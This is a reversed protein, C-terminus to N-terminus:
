HRAIATTMRFGDKGDALGVLVTLPRGVPWNIFLCQKLLALRWAWGPLRKVPPPSYTRSWCIEEPGLCCDELETGLLSKCRSTRSRVM